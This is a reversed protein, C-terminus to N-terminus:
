HTHCVQTPTNHSESSWPHHSLSGLESDSPPPPCIAKAIHSPNIPSSLSPPDTLINYLMSSRNPNTSVEGMAGLAAQDSQLVHGQSQTFRYNEAAVTAAHSPSHHVPYSDDSRSESQLCCERLLENSEGQCSTHLVWEEPAEVIGGATTATTNQSVPQLLSSSGSAGSGGCAVAGTKICMVSGSGAGTITSSPLSSGDPQTTPRSHVLLDASALHVHGQPYPGQQVMSVHTLPTASIAANSVCSLDRTPPEPKRPEQHPSFKKSIKLTAYAKNTAPSSHHPHHHFSTTATSPNNSGPNEPDGRVRGSVSKLEDDMAAKSSRLM